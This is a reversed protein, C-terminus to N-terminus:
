AKKCFPLPIRFQKSTSNRAGILHTWFQIHVCKITRGLIVWPHYRGHLALTYIRGAIIIRYELIAVEGFPDVYLLPNNNFTDYGFPERPDEEIFRGLMPDYFRARFYGLGTQEDFDRSQFLVRNDLSSNSTSLINGFSDSVYHNAIEGADSVLDRVTGVQDRLLWLTEGSMDLAFIQDLSPATLRRAMVNGNEDLELIPNVGSHFIHTTTIGDVRRKILRDSSDYTYEVDYVGVGNGDRQLVQVLRQRHDYTLNTVEGMVRDSKQVMNGQHDYEYDYQDDTTLVNGTDYGYTSSRHSSTRNGSPDYTYFEDPLLSTSPRDATLLRGLQDYTFRHTGESDSLELINSADDRQFQLDQIM